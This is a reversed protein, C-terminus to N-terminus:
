QRIRLTRRRFLYSDVFIAGPGTLASAANQLALITITISPLYAGAVGLGLACVLSTLRVLRTYIGLCVALSLVDVAIASILCATKAM